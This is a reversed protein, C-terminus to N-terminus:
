KVSEGFFLVCLVVCWIWLWFLCVGSISIGCLENFLWMVLVNVCFYCFSFLLVMRCCFNPEVLLNCVFILLLELIVKVFLGIVRLVVVLELMVVLLGVSCVVGVLLWNVLLLLWILVIYMIVVGFLIVKILGIIVMCLLLWFLVVSYVLEWLVCFVVLGFKWSFIFFKCYLLIGISVFLLRGNICCVSLVIFLM